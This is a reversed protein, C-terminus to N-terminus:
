ILLNMNMTKQDLATRYYEFAEDYKDKCLIDAHASRAQTLAMSVEEFLLQLRTQSSVCNSSILIFILLQISNILKNM